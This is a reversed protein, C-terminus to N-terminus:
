RRKGHLEKYIRYTDCIRSYPCEEKGRVFVRHSFSKKLVDYNWGQEAYMLRNYTKCWNEPMYPCGYFYPLRETTGSAVLIHSSGIRLVSVNPTAYTKKLM